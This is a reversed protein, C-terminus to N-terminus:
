HSGYVQEVIDLMAQLSQEFSFSSTDLVVADEAARLPDAARKSDQEDRAQLDKLVTPYDVNFGDAILQTYRRLARDEPSATLFIKVGAEPLVVTGIDRGDMLISRERALQQQLSVLYQRVAPFRSVASAAAGVAEGRLEGTVDRGNLLTIQQGDRYDVTVQAQGKDIVQNLAAEDDPSIGNRLAYLGVARYMAGSDLHLINLRRALADSLTSKGASVPGDVAITMLPKNM